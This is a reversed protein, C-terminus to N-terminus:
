TSKREAFALKLAIIRLKACYVECKELSQKVRGGRPSYTVLAKYGRHKCLPEVPRATCATNKNLFIM